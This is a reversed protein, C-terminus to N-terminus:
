LFIHFKHTVKRPQNEQQNSQGLIEVSSASAPLLSDPINKSKQEKETLIWKTPSSKARILKQGDKIVLEIQESGILANEIFEIRDHITATLEKVRKFSSITSIPLCGNEDMKKRIWFDLLRYKKLIGFFAFELLDNKPGM